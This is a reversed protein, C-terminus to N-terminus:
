IVSMKLLFLSKVRCSQRKVRKWNKKIEERFFQLVDYVAVGDLGPLTFTRLWQDWKELHPNEKLIKEWLTM